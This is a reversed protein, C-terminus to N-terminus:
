RPPCAEDQSSAHQLSVKSENRLGNLVKLCVLDRFSYIRGYPRGGAFTERGTIARHLRMIEERWPAGDKAPFRESIAPM